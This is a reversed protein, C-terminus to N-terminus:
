VLLKIEVMLCLIGKGWFGNILFLFSFLVAELVRKGFFLFGVIKFYWVFFCGVIHSRRKM